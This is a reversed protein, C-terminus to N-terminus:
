GPAATWRFSNISRAPRCATPRFSTSSRPLSFAANAQSSFSFFTGALVGTRAPREDLRHVPMIPFLQDIAWSDPLSQFISLNCFYIDSLIAELGELEEPVSLWLAGGDVSALRVAELAM